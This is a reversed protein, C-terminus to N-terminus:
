NGVAINRLVLDIANTYVMDKGEGLEQCIAQYKEYVGYENEYFNYCYEKEIQEGEEDLECEIGNDFYNM